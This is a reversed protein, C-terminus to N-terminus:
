RGMCEIRVAPLVRSRAHVISVDVTLRAATAFRLILRTQGTLLFPVPDGGVRPM